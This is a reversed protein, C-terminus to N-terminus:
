AVRCAICVDRFIIQRCFHLPATPLGIRLVRAMDFQNYFEASVLKSGM